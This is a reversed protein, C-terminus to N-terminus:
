VRGGGGGTGSAWVELFAWYRARLEGDLQGPAWCAAGRVVRVHGAPASALAEASGGLYVGALPPLPPVFHSPPRSDPSVAAPCRATPRLAAKPSSWM